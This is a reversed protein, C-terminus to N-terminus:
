KQAVQLRLPRGNQAVQSELTTGNDINDIVKFALYGLYGWMRSWQSELQARPM